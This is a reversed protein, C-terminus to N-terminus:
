DLELENELILIENLLKKSFYRGASILQFFLPRLEEILGKQKAIILVGLTGICNVNLSEAFLRAKNDDILLFDANLENYLIVSESEGYDMSTILHNKSKITIVKDGLYNLVSKDFDPNNYQNLEEWVAKSIHLKGFMNELLYIKDVHTLSIIAGTDAIIIRM